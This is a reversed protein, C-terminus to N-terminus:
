RKMLPRIYSNVLAAAFLGLKRPTHRYFVNLLRRAIDPHYPRKPMDAWPTGAQIREWEKTYPHESGEIWPRRSLFFNTFHVIAPQEKAQQIEEKTYSVHGQRFVAAEEYTFGYWLTYVDYRAPLTAINGQCVENICGQDVYPVRGNHRQICEGFRALTNEARWKDLDILMVGANYYPESKAMNVNRKQLPGMPEMVAACSAVGLPTNWLETVDDEILTDCDLYLIRRVNPLLEPTLLRVYTALSWHQTDLHQESLRRIADGVDTLIVRRQYESAVARLREKNEESVECCLVYVTLDTDARCHELLSTISVGALMAFNDDCAYVVQMVDSHKDGAAKEM